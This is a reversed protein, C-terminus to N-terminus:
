GGTRVSTSSSTATRPSRWPRRRRHRRRARRRRAALPRRRARLGGDPGSRASTSRTRRASSSTPSRSCRRPGRGAGADTYPAFGCRCRARVPRPRRAAGRPAPAVLAPPWEDGSRSATSWSARSTTASCRSRPAPGTPRPSCSASRAHDRPPRGADPGTLLERVALLERALATSRTSPTSPTAPAHGAAAVCGRSAAPRDPLRALVLRDLAEPLALLRLTEATPACDISSPTTTRPTSPRGRAARPRRRRRPRDRDGRRRAPRGRRRRAPRRACPAADDVRTSAPAPTSRCSTSTDPRRPSPAGADVAVGGTAGRPRVSRDPRARRHALAGPRHERRPHPSRRPRRRAGDCRRADDQRGRGQRRGSARARSSGVARQPAPRWRSRRTLGLGRGAGQPGRLATDVIVKEAKRKILGIMPISVDVALKYVVTTTGDGNDTLEYSATSRRSCRARHADLHGVTTTTGTTSSSTPTRSRVPTSSSAPTPPVATRTSPSCRSADERRREVRSLQRIDAIVAMVDAPAANIVISSETRDAM